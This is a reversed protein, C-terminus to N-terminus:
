SLDKSSSLEAKSFKLCSYGPFLAHYKIIYMYMNCGCMFTYMYMQSKHMHWRFVEGIM